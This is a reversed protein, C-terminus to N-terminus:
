LVTARFWMIVPAIGDVTTEGIGVVRGKGVGFSM